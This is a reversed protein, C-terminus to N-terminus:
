KGNAPAIETQPCKHARRERSGLPLGCSPCPQMKKPRGGPITRRRSRLTNAATYIAEDSATLIAEVQAAHPLTALHPLKRDGCTCPDSHYSITCSM